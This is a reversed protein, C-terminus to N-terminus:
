KEASIYGLESNEQFGEWFDRGFKQIGEESVIPTHWKINKFGVEILTNELTEPTYYISYLTCIFEEGNYLDIKIKTGDVEEGQLTKVSGFKKLDKGRPQDVMLVVKGGESLSQYINKFLFELQGLSESYNVVFPTLAIDAKPLEDKFIDGLQYVINKGHPQSEALKIQEKSNDIGIVKQAGAQSLSKTFFGDGCGLDLATKGSLDGIISLVTPLFSFQKDPKVDSKRFTNSLNEDYTNLTM